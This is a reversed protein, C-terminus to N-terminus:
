LLPAFVRLISSFVAFLLGKSKVDEMTIERCLELTKSFDEEMDAVVENSYIVSGCEYHLYLSRYDLNVTGTVAIRDDAAVMKTHVFGPTYEYIRVGSRLLEAYYSKTLINVIKKDPIYPLILEVKVGSKAAHKLAHLVENDPILYPTMIAVHRIANNIVDLYINEAVNDQRHPGDGYPIVFGDRELDPIREWDTDLYKVYDEPEGGWSGINWMQLFMLTYSKVADGELMFANDKWHGFREVRNIYEDALNIGGSFAVRGDIIMMKRHDRNNYHTSFFPRVRGFTRTNIGLKTMVEDYRRTLTSICGMDDYMFRVEVGERVKRVLIELLTDWFLGEEVIFYEMFIFNEAKELEDCMDQFVDDGLPYYKVKTNDYAPYGGANEIYDAMKSFDPDVNKLRDKVPETTVAYESTDKIIKNLRMFPLKENLNLHTYLYFLTGMIPMGAVIIAWSIKYSPNSRSNIIWIIVFVSIISVFTMFSKSYQGMYNFVLIIFIVQLAILTATIVFRSFILKIFPKKLKKTREGM